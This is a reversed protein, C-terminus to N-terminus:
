NWSRVQVDTSWFYPVNSIDLSEIEFNDQNLKLEIKGNGDADMQALLRDVADDVSDISPDWADNADGIVISVNEGNEFLINRRGGKAKEKADGYNVYSKMFYTLSGYSSDVSVGYNQGFQLSFNNQGSILVGSLRNPTYGFRSFASIYPAPPSQYLPKENALALQSSSSGAGTSLWGFQWDAVIPISNLPLNFRWLINRYFSGQMLSSYSAIKIEETLDISGFPIEPAGAYDIQVYSGKGLQTNQGTQDVGAKVAFFLYEGSLASYNIGKSLLASKIEGDSFMVFGSVPDKTGVTIIQAGKRIQLATRRTVNLVVNMSAIPSSILVSKEHYLISKSNVEYFPYRNELAYTQLEPTTYEVTIHSAGDEGGKAGILLATNNGPHVYQKIDVLRYYQISGSFVQIGNVYLTTIQNVWSPEALWSANNIESSSPISFSYSINVAEAGCYENGGSYNKWGGCILEGRLIASTKKSVIKKLWAKSVYGKSPSGKRIGSITQRAVSVYDASEISTKNRSAILDDGYWIGINESISMTKLVEDALQAALSINESYFDGIQELVSRNLDKINGSNILEKAYPNDIEGIKLSSLSTIIDYQIEGSKEGIKFVPFFMIVVIFIIILAFIADASFFLGRKKMKSGFIFILM